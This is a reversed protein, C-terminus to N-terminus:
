RASSFIHAFPALKGAAELAVHVKALQVDFPIHFDCPPVSLRLVASKGTQVVKIGTPWDEGRLSLLASTARSSFSLDLEGTVLKHYINVGDPFDIGRITVVSSAGGKPTPKKILFEPFGEQVTLWYALHFATAGAHEKLRYGRRGQEIAENMISSRWEARRGGVSSYWDRIAEYAVRHQYATTDPLADLYLQPACIATVFRDYRGAEQARAGRLHYRVDQDPQPPAGIKNEILIAVREGLATVRLLLDTEGDQDTVSHWAGDFGAKKLGVQEAFWDTFTPDVHFEEMLILDIDREAVSQLFSGFDDTPNM